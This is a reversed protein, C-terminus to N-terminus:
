RILIVKGRQVYQQGNLTVIERYLYVGGPVGNGFADTANWTIYNKGFHLDPLSNLTYTTVVKGNVGTIQLNVAEPLRDGSIELPFYVELNSPNPFPTSMRVVQEGQVVFTIRYPVIGSENGKADSAEIQLTYKGEPLQSPTYDIQFDSTPTAPHVVVDAGSLSVRKTTCDDECPSTLFIKIGATDTKLIAANSDFIRIEIVPNPSVIDGDELKRGDILVVLVPKTIDGEVNLHQPLEIFNNDYYLEPVIGPNVKVNIDNLGIKGSTSIEASFFTTDGPLPSVIRISRLESMRTTQNFVEIEVTLSDPFLKSSINVFGYHTTYIEGEKLTQQNTPGQYTLIGEAVSSHLVLWQDLQPPTGNLDDAASLSVRLWPYETASITSLDQNGQLNEFLIEEEGLPTLGAVEFQVVDTPELQSIHPIFTQWDLAPGILTSKMKGQAQYATVTRNVILEDQSDPTDEPVYVDASGAPSGKRGFVVIPTGVPYSELEDISIGLEQFKTKAAMPWASFNPNGM